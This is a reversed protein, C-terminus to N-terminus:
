EIEKLKQSAFNFDNDALFQIASEIEETETKFQLKQFNGQNADFLWPCSDNLLNVKEFSVDEGFYSLVAATVLFDSPYDVTLRVKATAESGYQIEEKKYENNRIYLTVHEKDADCLTKNELSLLTKPNVIEFNMGIPLGVTKTYDNKHELHSTIANELISLDVIPNDGTLRVVVDFHEKKSISIFRSLVNGEDGRFCTIQEELSFVELLDNEKNQSTAIIIKFDFKSKKLTDTIWKLLPKGEKLPINMLIKGPLRTSKMRAQIVFGVKMKNSQGDVM